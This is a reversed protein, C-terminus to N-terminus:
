KLLVIGYKQKLTRVIGPCAALTASRDGGGDHLLVIAGPKAKEAVRQEIVDASPGAWDRPDVAWHLSIMGLEKAVNVAAPTWNGGPQRFFRIKAGPVAQRIAKNTRQLNARIAAESRTGLDLEHNWSHNCLTHGERVIRAVLDPHKEAQRGVLCFTARVGAARLEDLIKPTWVPHPGDDFTLAVARKGTTRQLNM